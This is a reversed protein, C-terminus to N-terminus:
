LAGAGGMYASMAKAIDNAEAAVLQRLEKDKRLAQPNHGALKSRVQGCMQELQPDDTINLRPLVDCLEVLNGVLTDRFIADPDALREATHNVAEFLRQWADHMADSVAATCMSRLEMQIERVADEGIDVRFDKEDPFPMFKNDFTFKAALRAPVPYEEPRYLDGLDSKAEEVLSEYKDMFETVAKEFSQRFKRMEEVYKFYNDKPLIRSGDQSWPLTNAYHFERAATATKRVKDLPTEDQPLLKKRYKGARSSTGYQQAVTQTARRDEKNASWTGINLSVLMARKALSSEQKTASEM